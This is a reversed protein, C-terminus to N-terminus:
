SMGSMPKGRKNYSEGMAKNKNAMKEMKLAKVEYYEVIKEHDEPTEATEILVIIEEKESAKISVDQILTFVLLTFVFVKLLFKASKM